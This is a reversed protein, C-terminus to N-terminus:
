GSTEGLLLASAERLSALAVSCMHAEIAPALGWQKMFRQAAAAVYVQWLALRETDVDRHKAYTQMFQQIREMGFKYRLELMCCAVDSLPDGFGADEWDLVAAIADQKWLINMPWFDGHLLEPPKLYSTDSLSRLYARLDLWDHSEPLYDLIEPLPDIREPLVPLSKIPVAHINALMNAMAEVYHGEASTPIDSTGKVFRTVLFPESFFKSSADVLLPEPVPLGHQYLAQLLQYELDATHGSYAAGHARLVVSSTSGDCQTLELRHVDASVGGCLRAVTTIEAGPYLRAVIDSYPDSSVPSPV